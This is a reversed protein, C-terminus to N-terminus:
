GLEPGDSIPPNEGSILGIFIMQDILQSIGLVGNLPTRIEHSMTALFASKTRAAEEAAEKAHVIESIDTYTQVYGGNPLPETRVELVTGNPRRRIYSRKLSGIGKLFYNRVDEPLLSGGEGFEGNRWQETFVDKATSRMKLTTPDVGSYEVARKNFILVRGDPDVMALGQNLHDLTLELLAFNEIYTTERSVAGRSAPRLYGSLAVLQERCYDQLTKFRRRTTFPHM